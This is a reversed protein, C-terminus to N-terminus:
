DEEEHELIKLEVLRGLATAICELAYAIRLQAEMDTHQGTGSLAKFPGISKLKGEAM